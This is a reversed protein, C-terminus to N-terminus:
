KAHRAPQLEVAPRGNRSVWVGCPGGGPSEQLTVERGNVDLVDRAYGHERYNRILSSDLVTAHAMAQHYCTCYGHM